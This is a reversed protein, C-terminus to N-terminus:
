PTLAFAVRAELALLAQKRALGGAYGTLSGDAGIVRHCPIVIAIPNRGNAAGVARVAAPQGLRRAVDVYSATAGYPIALLARWVAQQFPTGAPALPLDFTMRAGAFYEGVQAAARELLAAAAAPVDASDVGDRDFDLVTLAAGDTMATLPGLPSAITRQWRANM